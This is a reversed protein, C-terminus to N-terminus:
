FAHLPSFFHFRFAFVFFCFVVVGRLKVGWRKWDFLHISHTPRPLLFFGVIYFFVVRGGAGHIRFRKKKQKKEKGEGAANFDMPVWSLCVSLYSDSSTYRIMFVTTTTLYDLLWLESVFRCTVDRWSVRAHSGGETWGPRPFFLSFPFCSFLFSFFNVCILWWWSLFFFLDGPFWM